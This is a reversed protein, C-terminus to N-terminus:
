AASAPVAPAPTTPVALCAVGAEAMIAAIRAQLTPRATVLAHTYAGHSVATAPQLQATLMQKAWRPGPFGQLIASVSLVTDLLPRQPPTATAPPAAPRTRAHLSPSILHPM